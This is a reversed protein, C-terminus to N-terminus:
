SHGRRPTKSVPLVSLIKNLWIGGGGEVTGACWSLLCRNFTQYAAHHTFTWFQQLLSAYLCLSIRMEAGILTARPRIPHPGFSREQQCPGFFQWRRRKWIGGGERQQATFSATSTASSAPKLPLPPLETSGPTRQRGLTFAERCQRDTHWVAAFAVGRGGSSCNGGRVHLYPSFCM